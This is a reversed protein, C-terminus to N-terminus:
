VKGSTKGADPISKECIDMEKGKLEFTLYMPFKGRVVREAM